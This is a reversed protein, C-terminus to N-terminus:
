AFLPFPNASLILLPSGEAFEWDLTETEIFGRLPKDMDGQKGGVYQAGASDAVRVLAYDLEEEMPQGGDPQLDAASHPSSDILWNDGAM